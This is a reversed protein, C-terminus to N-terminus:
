DITRTPIRNKTDGIRHVAKRRHCEADLLRNISQKIQEAEYTDGRAIAIDHADGLGDIENRLDAEHGEYPM